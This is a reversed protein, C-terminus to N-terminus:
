VSSFISFSQGMPHWLNQRYDVQLETKKAWLQQRLIRSGGEKWLLCQSELNVKPSASHCPHIRLVQLGLEMSAMTGKPARSEFEPFSLSWKSGQVDIHQSSIPKELPSLQCLPQAWQRQESNHEVGDARRGSSISGSWLWNLETWDSMRTRNKAVGHIAARWAERDM